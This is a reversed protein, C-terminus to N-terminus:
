VEKRERDIQNNKMDLNFSRVMLMITVAVIAVRIGIYFLNM